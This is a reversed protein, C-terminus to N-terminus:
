SHLDVLPCGQVKCSVRALSQITGAGEKGPSRSCTPEASSKQFAWRASFRGNSHPPSFLLRGGVLSEGSEPGGGAEGQREERVKSLTGDAFGGPSPSESPLYTIPSVARCAPALPM